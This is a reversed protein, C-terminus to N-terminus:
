KGLKFPVGEQEWGQITRRIDQITLKLEKSADLLSEYLAPNNLMM